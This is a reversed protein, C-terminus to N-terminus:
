AEAPLVVSSRPQCIAALTTGVEAPTVDKNRLTQERVATRAIDNLSVLGVLRGELDIVPLRRVRRMRMIDAAEAITDDPMCSYVENAMADRVLIERMAKGQTYGAMCVDRDTLFGVVRRDADIVPVCGCDYDWMLGAARVLTEDPGVAMVNRTMIESITM